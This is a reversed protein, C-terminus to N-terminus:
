VDDVALFRPPTWCSDYVPKRPGDLNLKIFLRDGAVTKSSVDGTCRGIGVADLWCHQRSSGAVESVTWLSSQYREARRNQEVYVDKENRRKQM